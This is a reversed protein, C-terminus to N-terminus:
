NGKVRLAAMIAKGEDTNGIEREGCTCVFLDAHLQERRGQSVMVHQPGTTCRNANAMLYSEIAM